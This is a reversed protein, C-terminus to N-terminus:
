LFPNVIQLDGIKRGSQLDESYLEKAGSALASVVILSDYFRYHTQSHLALAKLYLAKSPMVECHPMLVLELYDSLDERRMPVKFRHRAVNCFEQIVQWSIGWEESQNQIIARARERKADAARDFAYVLVNTDLFVKAPM